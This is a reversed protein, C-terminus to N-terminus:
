SFASRNAALAAAAATARWGPLAAAAVVQQLTLTSSAATRHLYPSLCHLFGEPLQWM